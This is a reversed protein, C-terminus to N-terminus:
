EKMHIEYFDSGDELELWMEDNTLRTVTYPQPDNGWYTIIPFLERDPYRTSDFVTNIMTIKVKSGIDIDFYGDYATFFVM